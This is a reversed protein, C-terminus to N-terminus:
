SPAPNRDGTVTTCRGTPALKSAFFTLVGRADLINQTMTPNKALLSAGVPPEYRNVSNHSHIM